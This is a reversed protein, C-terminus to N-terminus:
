ANLESLLHEAARETWGDLGEVEELLRALRSPPAIHGFRGILFAAYWGAWMEDREEHLYVRQFESHTDWTEQLVDVLVQKEPLPVPSKSDPM